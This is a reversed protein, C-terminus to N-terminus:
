RDGDSGRLAGDRDRVVSLFRLGPLEGDELPLTRRDGVRLEVGFRDVAGREVVRLEVGFFDVVVRDPPDGDRDLEDRPM